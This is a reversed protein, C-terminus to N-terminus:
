PDPMGLVRSPDELRGDPCRVLAHMDPGIWEIVARFPPKAWKIGVMQNHGNVRRVVPTWRDANLECLRWCVLDGCDGYGQQNVLPPPVIPEIGTGHEEALQWRVGSKYLPPLWWDRWRPLNGIVAGDILSRAFWADQGLTGGPSEVVFLM